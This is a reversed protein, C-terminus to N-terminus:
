INQEHNTRGNVASAGLCPRQAWVCNKWDDSGLCHQHKQENELFWQCPIIQPKLQTNSM